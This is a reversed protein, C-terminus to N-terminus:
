STGPLESCTFDGLWYTTGSAATRPNGDLDAATIVIPMEYYWRTKTGETFSSGHAIRQNRTQEGNAVGYVEDRLWLTGLWGQGGDSVPEQGLVLVELKARNEASLVQGSFVFEIDKTTNRNLLITRETNRGRIGYFGNGASRTVWEPNFPLVVTDAPVEIGSAKRLITIENRAM